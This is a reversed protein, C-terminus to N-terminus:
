SLAVTVFDDVAPSGTEGVQACLRASLLLGSADDGPVWEGFRVLPGRANGQELSAEGDKICLRASLIAPTKALVQRGIEIARRLTERAPADENPIPMLALLATGTCLAMTYGAESLLSEAADIFDVCALSAESGVARAEAYVALCSRLAAASPAAGLGVAHVYASVFENVTPYRADPEKELGRLVVADVAASLPAFCSPRSPPEELHRREVELAEGDFPRVGTLLQFVTVALGYVDTRADVRQRRIQEPSMYVPTGLHCETVTLRTDGPELQLLKAIGFDLLKYTTPGGRQSDVCFINSPKIDRHIIGRAHAATLASAVPELIPVIESAAFREHRSLVRSLPLGELFEMALYPRGDPLIGVDFIDVIAPHRILNVMEAERFFRQVLRFDQCMDGRLVKFAARRKLIMHAASYVTSFGGTAVLDSIVYSGVCAGTPLSEEVGCTTSSSEVCTPNTPDAKM